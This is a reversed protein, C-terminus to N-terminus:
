GKEIVGVRGGGGGGGGGEKRECEREIIIGEKGM